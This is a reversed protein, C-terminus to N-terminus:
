LSIALLRSIDTGDTDQNGSRQKPFRIQSTTIKAKTSATQALHCAMLLEKLFAM